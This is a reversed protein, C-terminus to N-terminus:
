INFIDSFRETKQKRPTNILLLPSYHTPKFFNELQLYAQVWFQVMFRARIIEQFWEATNKKIKVESRTEM